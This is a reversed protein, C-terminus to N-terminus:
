PMEDNLLEDETYLGERGCWWCSRYSGVLRMSTEDIDYQTHTTYQHDGFECWFTKRVWGYPSSPRGLITLAHPIVGGQARCERTFPAHGDDIHWLDKLFSNFV